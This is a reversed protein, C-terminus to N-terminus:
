FRPELGVKRAAQRMGEINVRQFWRHAFDALVSISFWNGSLGALTRTHSTLEDAQTAYFEALNDLTIRITQPEGVANEARIVLFTEGAEEVFNGLMERADTTYNTTM